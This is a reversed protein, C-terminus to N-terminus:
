GPAAYCLCAAAELGKRDLIRIRGRHYSILGSEQLPMAVQNLTARRVGLMEALFAQTLFFQSSSVRDGTMLLWRALRAAVTHYRNCSVTQRAQALKVGAYRHLAAQLAPSQRVAEHLRAADVRLATGGSQVLARVSSLESGLVLPIGVMGEYGVLGVELAAGRGDAAGLATSLLSIVCDVPFYAHRIPQGPEHLVEGPRLTLPELGDLLDRYEALPLAALLRNAVPAAAARERLARRAAPLLVVNSSAYDIIGDVEGAAIARREPGGEALRLMLAAAIKAASDEAAIKM